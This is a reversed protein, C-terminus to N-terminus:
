GAPSGAATASTARAEIVPASGTARERGKVREREADRMWEDFDVEMTHRKSAYFRKRDAERKAAIEASMEAAPPPVYEGALLQAIWRAQEEALPM